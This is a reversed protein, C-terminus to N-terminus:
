TDEEASLHMRKPQLRFISPPEQSAGYFIMNKYDPLGYKEPNRSAFVINLIYNEIKEDMYVERVVDRARLIDSTKLVSSTRPFEIGLNKRIILREEEMTPYDILVKMM